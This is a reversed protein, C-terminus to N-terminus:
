KKKIGNIVKKKIFNYGLTLRYNKTQTNNFSYHEFNNGYTYSRTQQNRFPDIFNVTVFFRKEFFKKQIGVNMSLNWSVSGQPNAFRNTTFNGTFNWIDKSSFNGNLTSTFSGGDRYKRIRKDFESYANYTYSASINIKIKKSLTYGNWSSIEYEKRNSINEWTIQTKGDPLLTRLQTFIDEVLNLGFGLNLFYKSKTKGIVLDFNNALSPKLQYNGFRINYPDSFDVTPNLENIGPRRITRRYSFTLNLDDNWTKNLNAFPLFNWYNNSVNKGTKLLEFNIATAEAAVGATISFKEGMIQKLSTRFTSVDQHFKFDNSLLDLNAFEGDQKRKYSAETEIHSNSRNYSASVSLYTKQPLLPKDYNMRASFGNSRNDTKQQQTSDTGNPSFDPNFFEQYFLRSNKNVSFNTNTIIRLQEGATKGKLTYTFSLSPNDNNGKSSITRESLRYINEFRNLNIYDTINRNNFDNQNLHLVLNLSQKKSIDYDINL